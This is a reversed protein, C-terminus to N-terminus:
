RQPMAGTVIAWVGFLETLPAAPMPIATPTYPTENPTRATAAPILGAWAHTIDISTKV